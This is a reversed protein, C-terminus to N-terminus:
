APGRAGSPVTFYGFGPSAFDFEDRQVPAWKAPVLPAVARVGSILKRGRLHDSITKEDSNIIIGCEDRSLGQLWGSTARSCRPPKPLPAPGDDVSSEAAWGLVVAAEKAYALDFEKSNSPRGEPVDIVPPAPMEPIGWPSGGGLLRDALRFPLAALSSALSFLHHFASRLASLLARFM